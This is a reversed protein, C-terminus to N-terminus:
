AEVLGRERKLYRSPYTYKALGKLLRAEANRTDARGGVITLLEDIGKVGM